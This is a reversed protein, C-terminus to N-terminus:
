QELPEVVGDAGVFGWSAERRQSLLCKGSRPLCCSQLSERSEPQEVAAPFLGSQQGPPGQNCCNKTKSDNNRLYRGAAALFM